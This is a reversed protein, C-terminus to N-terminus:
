KVIQTFPKLSLNPLPICYAANRKTVVDAYNRSKLNEYGV